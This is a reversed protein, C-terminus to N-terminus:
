YAESHTRPSDGIEGPLVVVRDAGAGDVFRLDYGDPLAKGAVAKIASAPYSIAGRRFDDDSAARVIM